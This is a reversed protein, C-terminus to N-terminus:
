SAAVSLRGYHLFLPEIESSFVFFKCCIPFFYSIYLNWYGFNCNINASQNITAKLLLFVKSVTFWLYWHISSGCLRGMSRVHQCTAHLVRVFHHDPGDNRCSTWSSLMHHFPAHISNLVIMYNVGTVGCSRSQYPSTDCHM